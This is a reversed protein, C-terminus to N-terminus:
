VLSFGKGVGEVSGAWNRIKIRAEVFRAADAECNDLKKIAQKARAVLKHVRTQEEVAEDEMDYDAAWRAKRLDLLERAAAIVHDNGSYRLADPIMQHAEWGGSHKVGMKKLLGVAVHYLAYYARSVATRLEARTVDEKAAL